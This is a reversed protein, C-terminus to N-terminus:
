FQKKTRDLLARSVVRTHTPHGDTVRMPTNKMDWKAPVAICNVDREALPTTMILSRPNHINLIAQDLAAFSPLNITSEYFNSMTHFVPCLLQM